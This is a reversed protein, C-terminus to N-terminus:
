KLAYCIYYPKKVGREYECRMNTTDSSTGCFFSAFCFLLRVCRKNEKNKDENM